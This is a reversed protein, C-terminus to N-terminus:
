PTRLPPPTAREDARLRAREAELRGIVASWGQSQGGAYRLTFPLDLEVAPRLAVVGIEPVRAGLRREDWGPTLAVTERPVALGGRTDVTLGGPDFREGATSAVFSVLFLTGEVEGHRQRHREALAALRAYSDPAALRIVEEALPTVRLRVPGAQLTVSIEEERLSGAGARPLEAVAPRPAQEGWEGAAPACGLLLLLAAVPARTV